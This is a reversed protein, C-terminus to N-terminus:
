EAVPAFIQDIAWDIVAEKTLEYKIQVILFDAYACAEERTANKQEELYKAVYGEYKETYDDETWSIENEEALVYLSMDFIVQNISQQLIISESLNYYLALQEYSINYYYAMFHYYDITQQYYHMYTEQPLKTASSTKLIITELLTKTTAFIQEHSNLWEEYTKYDNGKYEEVKQDTLTLDYISNLTMTFVVAKGALAADGYNEPFTVNVDFTEGVSHGIIGDTFGPIYGNKYDSIFLPVNSATGGAFAVGDLKGVYNINVCDGSQAPRTPNEMKPFTAIGGYVQLAIDYAVGELVTPALTSFDINELTVYSSSDLKAYDPRPYEPHKKPAVNQPLYTTKEMKLTNAFKDFIFDLSEDGTSLTFTTNGDYSCNVEEVTEYEYYGPTLTYIKAKNSGQTLEIVGCTAYSYWYGWPSHEIPQTTEEPPLTTGHDIVEVVRCSSLVLMAAILVFILSKKLM